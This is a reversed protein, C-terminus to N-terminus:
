VVCVCFLKLKPVCLIPSCVKTTILPQMIKVSAIWDDNKIRKALQSDRHDFSEAYLVFSVVLRVLAMLFCVTLNFM